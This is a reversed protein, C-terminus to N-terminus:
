QIYNTKIWKDVKGLYKADDWTPVYTAKRCVETVVVHEGTECGSYIFSYSTGKEKKLLADRQKQSFWAHWIKKSMEDPM